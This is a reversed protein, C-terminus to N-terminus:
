LAAHEFATGCATRLLASLADDAREVSINSECNGEYLVVLLATQLVANIHM